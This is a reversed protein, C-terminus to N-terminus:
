TLLARPHWRILANKGYCEKLFYSGGRSNSLYLCEIKYVKGSVCVNLSCFHIQKQMYCPPYFLSLHLRTNRLLSLYSPGPTRLSIEEEVM